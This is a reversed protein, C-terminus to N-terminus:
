VYTSDNPTEWSEALAPVINLEDDYMVLTEYVHEYAQLASFNSSTAADLQVPDVEQAAILHGGMQRTLQRYLPRAQAAPGGPLYLGAAAGALAAGGRFLQRRTVSGQLGGHVQTM